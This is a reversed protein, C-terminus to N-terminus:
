KLQANVLAPMDFMSVQAAKFIKKLKADTNVMTKKSRDLLGHAQIYAWLKKTVDVRSMPGVGIIAALERSPTCMKGSGARPEVAASRKTRTKKPGANAKPTVPTKGAPRARLPAGAGEVYAVVLKQRKAWKREFVRRRVVYAGRQVGVVVGAHDRGIPVVAGVGVPKALATKVPRLAGNSDFAVLKGSPVDIKGVKKAASLPAGLAEAFLAAVDDGRTGYNDEDDWWARPPEVFALAGHEIRYIEAEGTEGELRLVFAKGSGVKLAGHTFDDDAQYFENVKQPHGGLEDDDPDDHVPEWAGTAGADLFVLTLSANVACVTGAPALGGRKTTTM